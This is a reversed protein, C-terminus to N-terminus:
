FEKKGLPFGIKEWNRTSRFKELDKFLLCIPIKLTGKVECKILNHTLLHINAIFILSHLFFFVIVFKFM